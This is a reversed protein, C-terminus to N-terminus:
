YSIIRQRIQCFNLIQSDVYEDILILPRDQWDYNIGHLQLLPRHGFVKLEKKASAPVCRLEVKDWSVKRGTVEHLYHFVSPYGERLEQPDRGGILSRDFCDECYACIEDDAYFLKKDRVVERGAEIGLAQALQPDAEIVEVDLVQVRPKFGAEEILDSFRGVPSFSLRMNVRTMNVFTGKGHIRHVLGEIELESLASRLTVRSVGIMRCFLEERPLKNSESLDLSMIYDRIKAKAQTKLDVHSIMAKSISDSGKSRGPLLGDSFTRNHSILYYTIGKIGRNM